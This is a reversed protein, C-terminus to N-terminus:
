SGLSCSEGGQPLGHASWGRGAVISCNTQAKRHGLAPKEKMGGHCACCVNRLTCSPRPPHKSAISQHRSAAEMDAINGTNLGMGSSPVGAIERVRDIDEGKLNIVVHSYPRDRKATVLSALMHEAGGTALRPIVHLVTPPTM